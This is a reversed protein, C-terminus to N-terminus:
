KGIKGKKDVNHQGVIPKPNRKLSDPTIEYHKLLIEKQHDSYRDPNKEFDDLTMNNLETIKEGISKLMRQYRYNPCADLTKKTYYQLYEGLAKLEEGDANSYLRLIAPIHIFVKGFIKSISWLQMGLTRLRDYLDILRKKKRLQEKISHRTTNM